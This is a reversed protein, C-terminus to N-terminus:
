LIGKHHLAMVVVVALFSPSLHSRQLLRVENSLQKKNINRSSKNKKKKKKKKKKHTYKHQFLEGCM